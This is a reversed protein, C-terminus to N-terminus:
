SKKDKSSKTTKAAVLQKPASSSDIQEDSGSPDSSDNSGGSGSRNSDGPLASADVVGTIMELTKRRQQENYRTMGEVDNKMIIRGEDDM